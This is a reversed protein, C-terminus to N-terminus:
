LVLQIADLHIGTEREYQNLTQRWTDLQFTLQSAVAANTAKVLMTTKHGTRKIKVAKTHSRYPEPVHQAWLAMVAWEQVKTDLNLQQGVIPLITDIGTMPTGRRSPKKKM